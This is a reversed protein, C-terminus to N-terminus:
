RKPIQHNEVSKSCPTSHYNGPEYVLNSPGCACRLYLSRMRRYSNMEFNENITTPMLAYVAMTGMCPALSSKARPIKGDLSVPM